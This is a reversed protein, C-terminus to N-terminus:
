FARFIFTENDYNSFNEIFNFEYADIEQSDLMRLGSFDLREIKPKFKRIIKSLADLLDLFDRLVKESKMVGTIKIEKLSRDLQQFNKILPFHIFFVKMYKIEKKLFATDPITFVYKKKDGSSRAVRWRRCTAAKALTMASSFFCEHFVLIQRFIIIAILDTNM